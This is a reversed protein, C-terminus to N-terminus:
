STVGINYNSVVPLQPGGGHVGKEYSKTMMAILTNVMLVVAIVRSLVFITTGAVPTTSSRICEM